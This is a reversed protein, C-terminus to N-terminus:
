PVLSGLYFFLLLPKFLNHTVNHRLGELMGRERERHGTATTRECATADPALAHNGSRPARPAGQADRAKASGAVGALALVVILPTLCPRIAHCGPGLMEPM